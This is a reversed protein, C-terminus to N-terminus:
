CKEHIRHAQGTARDLTKLRLQTSGFHLGHGVADMNGLCKKDCLSLSCYGEVASELVRHGCLGCSTQTGTWM